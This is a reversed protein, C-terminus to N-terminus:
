QFGTMTLHIEIKEIIDGNMLLENPNDPQANGLEDCILLLEEVTTQAGVKLTPLVKKILKLEANTFNM